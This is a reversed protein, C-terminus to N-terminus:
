HVLTPSSSRPSTCHRHQGTQGVGAWWYCVARLYCVFGGKTRVHSQAHSGCVNERTIRLAVGTERPPMEKRVRPPQACERNSTHAQTQTRTQTQTADTYVCAHTCIDAYTHMSTCVRERECVCMYLQSASRSASTLNPSM